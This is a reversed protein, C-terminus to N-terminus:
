DRPSPSTYLLCSETVTFEHWSIWDLVEERRWSINDIIQKPCSLEYDKDMFWELLEIHQRGSFIAEMVCEDVNFRQGRRHLVELIEFNRFRCAMSLAYSNCQFHTFNADMWKIMDISNLRCANDIMATSAAVLNKAGLYDHAHYWRLVELNCSANYSDFIVDYGQRKYM